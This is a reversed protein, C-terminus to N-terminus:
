EEPPAESDSEPEPTPPPPLPETQALPTILIEQIATIRDRICMESGV